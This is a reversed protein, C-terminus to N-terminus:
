ASWNPRGDEDADLWLKAEGGQVSALTHTVAPHRHLLARVQEGLERLRDPDPGFLRLGVPASVPPGQGFSRVVIQADRFRPALDDQLMAELRPADSVDALAITGRGYAPNNDQQRLQNYYVPPSSAGAVWTIGTVGAHARIAREIDLLRTTTAALSTGGPMWVQIELQDRDAPPFFQM